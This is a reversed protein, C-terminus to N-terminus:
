FFWKKGRVNCEHIIIESAYFLPAFGRKEDFCTYIMHMLLITFINTLRKENAILLQVKELLPAFIWSFNIM